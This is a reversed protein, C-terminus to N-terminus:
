DPGHRGGDSIRGARDFFRTTMWGISVGVFGGAVVDSFFHFNGAVLAAAIAAAALACLSRLRPYRIWLVALVACAAAMHGSPFLEYGTGGHFWNFGYAGDHIFSPNNDTWTEPWTRGFAWKLLNKVAESMTVSVSCAVVVAALRSLPRGALVRLGLGFFAIAAAPLLPDSFHSVPASMPGGQSAFHIHVWLAAPRDLWQYCIIVTAVTLALALLWRQLATMIRTANTRNKELSRVM